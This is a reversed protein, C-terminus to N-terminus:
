WLRLGGPTILHLGYLYLACFGFYVCLAIRDRRENRDMAGEQAESASMARRAASVREPRSRHAPIPMDRLRSNRSITASPM